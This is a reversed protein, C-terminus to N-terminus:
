MIAILLKAADKGFWRPVSGRVTRDLASMVVFKSWILSHRLLMCLPDCAAPPMDRLALLAQVAVIRAENSSASLLDVLSDLVGTQVQPRPLSPDVADMLLDFRKLVFVKDGEPKSQFGSRLSDGSFPGPPAHQVHQFVRQVHEFVGQWLLTIPPMPCVTDDAYKVERLRVDVTFHSIYCWVDEDIDPVLSVMIRPSSRWSNQCVVIVDDQVAVVAVAHAKESGHLPSAVVIAMPVALSHTDRTYRVLDAFCTSNRYSVDSARQHRAFLPHPANNICDFLSGM